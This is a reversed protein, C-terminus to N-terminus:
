CAAWRRRAARPWTRRARRLRADAPRDEARHPPPDGVPGFALGILLATMAAMVARFTLYQFVRLFGFEPSYRRCGSPWALCCPAESGRRSPAHADGGTRRHLAAVVREMKMFRSGKVLVGACARRRASRRSCRRSTPSTRARRAFARRRTRASRARPGSRTSAARRACLRRGRRPVAPGQDGVEGMDGLVLLRPAPCRPSCTSRPACRIPIPTTATTSWRRRERRRARVRQLQSRGTVPEFRKSARARDRRAPVGAALACAAAALANSCTTRPRRHAARLTAAGAPTHLACAGTTATGM